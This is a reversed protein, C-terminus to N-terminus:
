EGNASLFSVPACFIKIQGKALLEEGLFVEGDVVAFEGILARTFVMINLKEGVKASGMISVRKLGVLFGVMNKQASEEKMLRLGAMAAYSQAMIEFFYAGPLTSDESLGAWDSKIVSTARASDDSILEISDVVLMPPQHPVIDKVNYCVLLEKKQSDPQM